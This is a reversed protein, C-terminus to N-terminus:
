TKREEKELKHRKKETEQVLEPGVQHSWMGPWCHKLCAFMEINGIV